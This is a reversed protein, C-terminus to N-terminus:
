PLLFLGVQVGVRVCSHSLDKELDKTFLPLLGVPVGILYDGMVVVDAKQTGQAVIRRLIRTHLYLM